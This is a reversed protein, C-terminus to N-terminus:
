FYRRFQVTGRNADSHQNVERALELLLDFRDSRHLTVGLNFVRTVSPLADHTEFTGSESSADAISMRLRPSADPTWRWGARASVRLAGFEGLDRQGGIEFM